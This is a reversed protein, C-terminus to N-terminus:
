CFASHLLALQTAVVQFHRSEPEAAHSQAEAIAGGQFLLTRDRQDAVRELATHREEVGGFGITGERVLFHHALCQSGDAVLDHNRGLEAELIPLGSRAHVAPRLTDPLDGVRRELPEPGVADVEEILV